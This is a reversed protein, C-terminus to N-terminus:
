FLYRLGAGAMHGSFEVDLPATFGAGTFDFDADQAYLYRYSMMFDWGPLIRVLFGGGARAAFVWDADDAEGAVGAISVDDLGVRLLGAGVDVFPRFDGEAWGGYEYGATGFVGLASVDGNLDLGGVGPVTVDQPDLGSYLLDIGARFGSGHLVGAGLGTMYGPGVDLDGSVGAISADADTVFLVGNEVTVYFHVPEATAEAIGFCSALVPAAALLITRSM